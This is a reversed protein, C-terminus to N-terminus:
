NASKMVYTSHAAFIADEVDFNTALLPIRHDLNNKRKLRHVQKELIEFREEISAQEEPTLAM